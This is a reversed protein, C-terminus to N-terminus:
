SASNVITNNATGGNFVRMCYESGTLAVSNIVQNQSVPLGSKYIIAYKEAPFVNKTIVSSNNSENFETCVGKPDAVLKFDLDGFGKITDKPITYSIDFTKGPQLIPITFTKLWTSGVYLSAGTQVSAKNGSRNQITATIKIDKEASIKEGDNNAVDFKTVSLDAMAPEIIFEASSSENNNESDENIVGAADAVIKITHKGNKLKGAAFTYSYSKSAGAALAAIAVEAYKAGDVYIFAKSAGAALDGTNKITFNYTFSETPTFRVTDLATKSLAASTIKLDAIPINRYYKATITVDNTVSASYYTYYYGTIIHPRIPDYTYNTYAVAPELYADRTLSISTNATVTLTISEEPTIMFERGNVIAYIDLYVSNDHYSSYIGNNTITIVAKDADAPLSCYWSDDTVYAAGYTRTGGSCQVTVYCTATETKLLKDLAYDHLTETTDDHTEGSVIHDTEHAIVSIIEANSYSQDLIVFANDNKIQNDVDVTEALGYFEGYSEFAKTNGVYVTSYEGTVPATSVFVINEEAYQRNLQATIEKIRDATLGSDDVKVDLTLNLDRNTYRTEGGDFDLYVVQKEAASIQPVYQLGGHNQM